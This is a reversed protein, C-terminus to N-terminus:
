HGLIPIHISLRRRSRIAPAHGRLQRARLELLLGIDASPQFPDAVLDGGALPLAAILAGDKEALLHAGRDLDPRSDLDALRRLAPEDAPRSLRIMVDSEGPARGPVAICNFKTRM